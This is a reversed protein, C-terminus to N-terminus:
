LVCAYKTYLSHYEWPVWTTCAIVLVFTAGESVAGTSAASSCAHVRASLLSCRAHCPCSYRSGVTGCDERLPSRCGCSLHCLLGECRLSTTPSGICGAM